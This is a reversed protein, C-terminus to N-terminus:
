GNFGESSAGNKASSLYAVSASWINNAHTAQSGEEFSNDLDQSLHLVLSCSKSSDPSSHITKPHLLHAKLSLESCDQDEFQAQTDIGFPFFM